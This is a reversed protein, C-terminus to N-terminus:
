KLHWIFVQFHIINEIIPMWILSTESYLLQVNVKLCYCTRKMEPPQNAKGLWRIYLEYCEVSVLMQSSASQCFGQSEPSMQQVLLHLAVRHLLAPVVAAAVYRAARVATLMPM